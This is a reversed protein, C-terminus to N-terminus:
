CVQFVRKRLDLEIWGADAKFGPGGDEIGGALDIARCKCDLTRQGLEIPLVSSCGLWLKDRHQSCQLARAPM